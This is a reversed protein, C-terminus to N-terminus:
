VIWVRNVYTGFRSLLDVRFDFCEKRLSEHGYHRAKHEIELLDEYLGQYDM